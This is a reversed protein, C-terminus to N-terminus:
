KEICANGSAILKQAVADSVTKVFAPDSNKEVVEAIIEQSRAIAALADPSEVAFKRAAGEIIKFNENLENILKQHRIAPSAYISELVKKFDSPVYPSGYLLALGKEKIGDATFYLVAGVLVTLIIAMFLIRLLHEMIKNYGIKKYLAKIFLITTKKAIM